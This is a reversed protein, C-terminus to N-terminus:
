MKNNSSNTTKNMRSPNDVSKTVGSEEKKDTKQSSASEDRASDSVDADISSTKSQSYITRQDNILKIEKHVDLSQDHLRNEANSLDTTQEVDSDCQTTANPTGSSSMSSLSGSSGSMTDFNKNNLCKSDLDIVVISRRISELQDDTTKPDITSIRREIAKMGLTENCADGCPSLLADFPQLFSAPAYRVTSTGPESVTWWGDMAIVSIKLVDGAKFSVEDANKGEYDMVACYKGPPNLITLEDAEHDSIAMLHGVPFWGFKGQNTCVYWWGTNCKRHVHVRENENLSIQKKEDKEAKFSETVRYIPLHLPSSIDLAENTKPIVLTLGTKSRAGSVTGAKLNCNQCENFFRRVLTRAPDNEITLLANCYNAVSQLNKTARKQGGFNLRGSELRPARSGNINKFIDKILTKPLNSKIEEDLLLLNPYSVTIKYETGDAKRV